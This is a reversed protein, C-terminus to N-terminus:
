NFTKGLFIVAYIIWGVAIPDIFRLLFKWVTHFPFRGHGEELEKKTFVKKLVWGVFIAIFIGGVPLFWNSALYDFTDFVGQSKGGLPNWNSLQKVSGLSLASLIGFSFIAFGMLITAKTRPWNLQDIFYSVVVELLSITSTLAALAVLLYFLPALITGGPLNYFMKPLTTFMIVISKSYESARQAEPITFIISYMVVCAMLAILTDMICVMGAAKPISEKKTMYSGYTIIAGMGLSLTFFSHGVAELIGDPRIKTPTFMFAIAKKFGSVWFSNVVLILLILFLIPMLIKTIREIGNKIGFVVVLVTFTMFLGHFLIQAPGNALFSNFNSGLTAADHPTFGRISWVLCKSFYQVTWGAVVSYYSLIVFGAGIGLWGVLSWAPNGLKLFAGVPSKQTSRGIVIEAMMIPFGVVLVSLLYVLVFSGGHNEYTIYPFKWINGLGVASGGAALIFGLHGFSGRKKAM